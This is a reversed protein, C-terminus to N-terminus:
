RAASRYADVTAAATRNWTFETARARGARALRARLGEDGGLRALGDAISDVDLPDVLLVAEGLVEPAASYRGVLAPTGAAMAELPPLGFGEYLSPFCFLDAAALLGTLITDDLWGTTVVRPAAPLEPGWGPPGAVALTWEALSDSAATWAALLRHLNKRPQITGVFLAFPRAIGFRALGTDDLPRADFFHPSVGEPTVFVRDDSVGYLEAVESAVARTPVLVAAARRVSWPVIAALRKSRTFGDDRSFTLDHVTVVGGARRAPPLVFSTGHVVEVDGVLREIAPFNLKRWGFQVVKAPLHWRAAASRRPASMSVVYPKLDVEFSELAAALERTYRGIGTLQDQLPGADYAVRV